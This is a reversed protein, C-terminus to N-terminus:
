PTFRRTTIGRAEAYDACHSAGHSGHVDLRNCNWRTCPAIFALCLAPRSDVMQRNRALGAGRPARKWNAPHPEDAVGGLLAAQCDRVWQAAHQDAGADCAGHVVIIPGGSEHWARALERRVVREDPWNRSGTVLVRYPATM